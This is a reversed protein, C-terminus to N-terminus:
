FGQPQSFQVQVAAGPAVQSGPAPNQRSAVGTGAADLSLDLGFLVQDALKLSLGTLNPVTVAAGPPPTRTYLTVPPGAPSGAAPQQGTVVTGAGSVDVNLGMQFLIQRASSVPYGTLAPLVPASGAAARSTAPAPLPTAPLPLDYPVDLYHLIKAGLQQFVPAAVEAGYYNDGKPEYVMVLMGFAPHVAPAFGLFSSVYVNPEYGGVGPVQATGTKGAVSYGPIAATTGTGSEVTRRMMDMIEAATASSIVQRVMVPGRKEVTHGSAAVVARVLRPQMLYGGNAVACAATLMQLPTVSIGQGFGMTALDLPTARSPPVIIGDAEGPLDIGTPRGFGFGAIYRYFRAAGLDVALRAFVPNYSNAFAWSLTHNNDPAFYADNIRTGQVVIYGPYSYRTEPSTVGEELAAATTVIKFLSGPEVDNLVAADQYWLAEPYAQRDGPDFTPRNGLALIGGTKPDMVIITAGAPHFQKVIQDLAQEVYFQINEDLTLVLSDGQDPPVVQRLTPLIPNGDGDVQVQLRGSHGALLANYSKELGTLGNEDLGTFGLVQAALDGQLYYRREAPLFYIGPLKADALAKKLSEARPLPLDHTLWVFYRKSSLEGVLDGAKVGLFPALVAAERAAYKGGIEEPDAYVSRAPENSVLPNHNRDYIIGRAAPMREIVTRYSLAQADLTGGWVVQIFFVRLLLTGLVLPVALLM